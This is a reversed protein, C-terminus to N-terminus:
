AKGHRDCAGIRNHMMREYKRAPRKRRKRKPREAPQTSIGFAKRFADAMATDAFSRSVVARMKAYDM